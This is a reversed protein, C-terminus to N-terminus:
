IGCRSYLCIWRQICLSRMALYDSGGLAVDCASVIKVPEENPLVGNYFNMHEPNFVAGDREIPEQQCQSFWSAMDDNEEFKARKLGTISRASDSIIIMILIAKM